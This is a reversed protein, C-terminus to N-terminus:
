VDISVGEWYNDGHAYDFSTEDAFEFHVKRVTNCIYIGYDTETVIEIEPDFEGLKEILERVKM